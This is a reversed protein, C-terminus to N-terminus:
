DQSERATAPESVLGYVDKASPWHLSGIGHRSALARVMTEVKEKSVGCGWAYVVESPHVMWEDPIEGTVVRLYNAAVVRVSWRATVFERARLGLALTEEISGVAAAITEELLEPATMITPPTDEEDLTRAWVDWAYGAIITARGEAAAEAGVAAMPIDSWLQDVVFSCGRIAELVEAHPAGTLERYVVAPFREVIRAMCARITESGKVAPNSPIHLVVISEPDPAQVQADSRATSVGLRYFDVFPRSFFHGTTPLGVVVDSWKEIRRVNSWVSRTRAALEDIDADTPPSSAGEAPTSMYPPRAESGHGLVVVVRKRFLRLVPIDLNGPLISIGWGFIYTDFRVLSWLLVGVSSLAFLGAWFAAAVGSARRHRLVAASAVRAPWPNPTGQEYAFPHPHTIVLRATVGLEIMGAELNRYLGSIEQTGLFVRPERTRRPQM